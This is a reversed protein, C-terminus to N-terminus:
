AYNEIGTSGTQQKSRMISEHLRTLGESLSVTPVWGTAKQLKEIDAELRMIQDPRYELAGFLPKVSSKSIRAISEVVTRLPVAKGSGLNFIGEVCNEALLLFANAADTVHLFDWQQECRTLRPVDNALFCRFLYPLLWDQRDGEGYTSFVRVWTGILGTARATGLAAWCASLKAMGYLTTPATACTETIKQDVLGYEAQSGVGIWQRCGVESALRVSDIVHPLNATIQDSENRDDGGVGKWAFHMWVNPHLSALTESLSDHGSISLPDWRIVKLQPLIDAIRDLSTEHRILAVVAHGSKLARRVFHSGIFGSAGTVVFKLPKPSAEQDPEM